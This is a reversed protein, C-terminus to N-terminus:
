AQACSWRVTGSPRSLRASAGRRTSATSPRAGPRRTPPRDAWTQRASTYRHHKASAKRRGTPYVSITSLFVYREARGALARAADGVVRPVYGSTDVVLDWSRGAILHHLDDPSERDGRVAEVGAVDLGTQGRNFTTVEHGRRLAEEVIARGVFRTGGLV